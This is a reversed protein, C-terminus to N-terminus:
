GAQLSRGHFTTFQKTIKAEFLRIAQAEVSISDSVNPGLGGGEDIM